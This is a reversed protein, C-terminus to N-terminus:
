GGGPNGVPKIALLSCFNLCQFWTSVSKFGVAELRAVHAPMTETILVNEIATRKRSIELGSYGQNAKYQLHLASMLEEMAPDEFRIKESILLAGGPLLADFVRQVLDERQEVPVFQLTYNLVAFSAPRFDVECLDADVLEVNRCDDEIGEILTRFRALMAPANDVAIVSARHGTHRLMSLTSAGLSCGLDYCYTNPRWFRAALVGTMEIVAAYGPVSRQIMDPFVAAVGEDFRFDGISAPRERYLEDRAM